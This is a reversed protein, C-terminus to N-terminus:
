FGPPVPARMTVRIEIGEEPPYMETERERFDITIRGALVSDPDFNHEKIWLRIAKGVADAAKFAIEREAFQRHKALSKPDMGLFAARMRRLSVIARSGVAYPTIASVFGFRNRLFTRNDASILVEPTDRVAVWPGQGCSIIAARDAARDVIRDLARRRLDATTVVHPENPM